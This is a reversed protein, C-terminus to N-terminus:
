ETKLADYIPRARVSADSEVTMSFGAVENNARITDANAFNFNWLMMPGVYDLSQGIEFARVVYEGQQATSI